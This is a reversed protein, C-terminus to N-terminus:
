KVGYLKKVEALSTGGKKKYSKWSREIIRRFIPSNAVVFSEWDQGDLPVIAWVPKGKETVVMPADDAMALLQSATIRSTRSSALHKM